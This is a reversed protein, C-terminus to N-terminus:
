VSYRAGNQYIWVHMNSMKIREDTQRGKGREELEVSQPVTPYPPPDTGIGVRKFSLRILCWYAFRMGVLLDGRHFRGCDRDCESFGSIARTCVRAPCTGPWASAQTGPEPFSHAVPSRHCAAVRLTSMRPSPCPPAPARLFSTAAAPRRCAGSVACGAGVRRGERKGASAVSTVAGAVM